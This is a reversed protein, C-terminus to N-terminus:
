SRLETLFSDVETRLLTALQALGSFDELGGQRRQDGNVAIGIAQVGDHMLLITESIEDLVRGAEEAAVQVDLAEREIRESADATQTALERVEDAVIAFGRGADGARAAEITANLALLRTQAAVQTILGVVQHILESSAVLAAITSRANEAERVAAGTSESLVGLTAGVETSATAVQESASLVATEFDASLETWHRDTTALQEASERMTQLARNVTDAGDRFAGRMGRVLFARHFRQEGAAEIAASAERVFADILDLLGNVVHRAEDITADAGEHRPVRTELDGNAAGACVATISAFAARYSELEARESGSLGRRARRRGTATAATM